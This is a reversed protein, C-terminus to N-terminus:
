NNGKNIFPNELLGKALNQWEKIKEASLLSIKEIETKNLKSDFDILDM